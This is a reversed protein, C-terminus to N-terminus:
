RRGRTGGTGRGFILGAGARKPALRGITIFDVAKANIAEAVGEIRSRKIGSWGRYEVGDRESEIVIRYTEEDAENDANDNAASM